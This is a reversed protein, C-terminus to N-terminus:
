GSTDACAFLVAYDPTRVSISGVEDVDEDIVASVFGVGFANSTFVGVEEPDEDCDGDTYYFSGYETNPQLGFALVAVLSGGRPLQRLLVFGRVASHQVPQLREFEVAQGSHSTNSASAGSALAIALVVVILLARKM